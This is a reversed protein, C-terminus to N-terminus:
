NRRMIKNDEFKKKSLEVKMKSPKILEQNVRQKEIKKNIQVQNEFLKEFYEKLSWSTTKPVILILTFYILFETVSAAIWISLLWAHKM